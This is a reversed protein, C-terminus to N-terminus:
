LRVLCVSFYCQKQFPAWVVSIKATWGRILPECVDCATHIRERGNERAAIETVAM